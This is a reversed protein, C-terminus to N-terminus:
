TEATVTATFVVPTWTSDFSLAEDRTLGDGGAWTVVGSGRNFLAYILTPGNPNFEDPEPQYMFGPHIKGGTRVKVPMGVQLTM